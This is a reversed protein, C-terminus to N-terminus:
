NGYYTQYYPQYYPDQEGTSYGYGGDYTNGSYMYPYDYPGGQRQGQLIDNLQGDLRQMKKEDQYDGLMTMGQGATQGLAAKAGGYRGLTIPKMKTMGTGANILTDGVRSVTGTAKAATGTAKAMGSLGKMTRGAGILTKGIAGTGSLAFFTNMLGSGLNGAASTWKGRKIDSWVNSYNRLADYGSLINGVVPISYLAANALFHRGLSSDENTLGLRGAINLDPLNGYDTAEKLLGEDAIYALGEFDRDTM